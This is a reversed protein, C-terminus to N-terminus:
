ATSSTGRVSVAFFISSGTRLIRSPAAASATALGSAIALGFLRRYKTSSAWRRFAGRVFEYLVKVVGDPKVRCGEKFLLPFFKEAQQQAVERSRSQRGSHKSGAPLLTVPPFWATGEQEYGEAKGQPFWGTGV